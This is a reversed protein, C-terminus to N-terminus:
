WNSSEATVSAGAFGPWVVMRCSELWAQASCVRLSTVCGSWCRATSLKTKTLQVGSSVAVPVLVFVVGDTAAVGESDAVGSVGVTVLLLTAGAEDALVIAVLVFVVLELGSALGMAWDRAALGFLVGTM